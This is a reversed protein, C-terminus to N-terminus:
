NQQSVTIKEFEITDLLQKFRKGPTFVVRTETISRATVGEALAAGESSITLRFTGFDGLEVIKGDALKEPVVDLFAELVALTDPASVTSMKNISKAITITNARGDSRVAAYYKPQAGLNRPDKKPIINFKVPM